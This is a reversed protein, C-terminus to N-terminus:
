FVKIVRHLDAGYLQIGGLEIKALDVSYRKTQRLYFTFKEDLEAVKYYAKPNNEISSMLERILWILNYFRNLEKDFCSLSSAKYDDVYRSLGKDLFCALFEKSWCAAEEPLTKLMSSLYQGIDPDSYIIDVGMLKVFSISVSDDQESNKKKSGRQTLFKVQLKKFQDRPSGKGMMDKISDFISLAVFYQYMSRHVFYLECSDKGEMFYQVTLLDRVNQDTKVQKAMKEYIKEYVEQNVVAKGPNNKWMDLAILKSFQHIYAAEEETISYPGGHDYNTRRYISNQDTISFIRDYVEILNTEKNLEIYLALVMYLIIPIGLVEKIKENKQMLKEMSAKTNVSRSDFRNYKETFLGIQDEQLPCLQIYPCEINKIQPIRNTRCTIFLSFNKIKHSRVWNKYISNLFQVQNNSMRVEDLGDLILVFNNLDSKQLGMYRLMKLFLNDASQNWDIQDFNRFCYMRVERDVFETPYNNLIYTMLTTKGYGPHGLVLLMQNQSDEKLELVSKLREEINGLNKKDNEDYHPLKYLECLKIQPTLFMQDEWADRYMEYSEQVADENNQYINYNNQEAIQTNGDGSGMTQNVSKKNIVM